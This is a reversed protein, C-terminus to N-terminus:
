LATFLAARSGGGSAAVIFVPGDPIQDLRSELAWLWIDQITRDMPSLTLGGSASPVPAEVTSASAAPVLDPSTAGGATTPRPPLQWFRGVEHAPTLSFLIAGGFVTLARVNWDSYVHCADIVMALLTWLFILHITAAITYFRFSVLDPLWFPLQWF